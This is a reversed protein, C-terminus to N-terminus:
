SIRQSQTKKKQLMRSVEDSIFFERVLHKRRLIKRTAHKHGRSTPSSTSARLRKSSICLVEKMMCITHYHTLCVSSYTNKKRNTRAEKYRRMINAMVVVQLILHKKKRNNNSLLMRGQTFCRSWRMRYLQSRNHECRLKKLLNSRRRTCESTRIEEHSQIREM